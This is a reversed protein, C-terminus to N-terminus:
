ELVMGICYGVDRITKIYEFTNPVSRLKKRVRAVLCWVAYNEAVSDMEDRWVYKYIQEHTYVRGISSFLLYLIDFEKRTLIIEESKVFFKRYEVCIFIEHYTIITLPREAQHNLVTYRRILARGSAIGEEITSPYALYEDAGLQIAELKESANYKSSLVLIPMSKMDRMHKLHPLYEIGDAIIVVLLFDTKTLLKLAEPMSRVMKILVHYKLWEKQTAEFNNLNNDVRLIWNEM